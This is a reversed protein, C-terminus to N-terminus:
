PCTKLKEEIAAKLALKARRYQNRVTSEKLALHQAIEKHSYGEIAYLVVVLRHQEKLEDLAEQMLQLPLEDTQDEEPTFAVTTDEEEQWDFRQEKRLVDLSMNTAIRYLWAGLNSNADLDDIKQFGKIFAEQVVDQALSPRKLIRIAATYLLGKYTNFVELQAAYSNAQCAKILQPTNSM